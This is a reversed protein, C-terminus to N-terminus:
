HRKKFLRNFSYRLFGVLFACGCYLFYFWHWLVAM